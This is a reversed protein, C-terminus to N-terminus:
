VLGWKKRLFWEAVMLGVFLLLFSLADQWTDGLRWRKPIEIKNDPALALIDKLLEGFEEPQVVRGGWERTQYAMRALQEPDAGSVSKELDNDFIVFDMETRGIERQGSKGIVEITYLGPQKLEDRSITGGFDTQERSITLDTQTGDPATLTGTLNLDVIADANASTVGTKFSAAQGLQFRRRPMYVWVDEGSLGDQGALWLIMQRWFRKHTASSYQTRWKWTDAAAFALIRGGVAGSVLIPDGAETELLVQARDKAVLRNPTKLGPLEDWPDGGNVGEGLRTVFHSVKPQVQVTGGIHFDLRPPSDLEQQEFNQMEIPLLDALDTTHYLGPGFSNYGGLMAFGKNGNSVADVLTAINDEQFTERFIARSDVDGFLIVDYKDDALYDSIDLPWQSQSRRDIPYPDVSIINDGRLSRRILQAEHDLNGYFFLVNVGRDEVTLFSPLQNNAVASETPQPTARVLMQFQGPNPPTYNLTVVQREFGQRPTVLQTDVIQENGQKDIIVLQIPLQQGAFGRATVTATVQLNNNVRVSFQDALNEISIDAAQNNDEARGFPICYLPIQSDNISRVAENLDTAPDIANQVGDSALITALLRQNRVLQVGSYISSGIDTEDGEPSEATRLRGADFELESLQNDFGFWRLKINNEDLKAITASNQQIMRQMVAYRSDQTARHPLQMSRTQDLFVEVIGTQSKEIQTVCGPRLLCLLVLLCTGIRLGRLIWGRRLTLEGFGPRMLILAILTAAAILLLWTPMVPEFTMSNM